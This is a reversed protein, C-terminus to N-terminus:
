CNSVEEVSPEIKNVTFQLKLEEKLPCRFKLAINIFSPRAPSKDIHPLKQIMEYFHQKILKNKIRPLYEEMLYNKLQEISLIPEQPKEPSKEQSAANHCSTVNRKEFGRKVKKTELTTYYKEVVDAPIGAYELLAFEQKQFRSKCQKVTKTGIHKQMKIFFCRKNAKKGTQFLSLISSLVDIRNQVVFDKMSIIERPTWPVRSSQSAPSLISSTERSDSM